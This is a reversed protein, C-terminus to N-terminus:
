FNSQIVSLYDIIKPKRPATASWAWALPPPPPEGMKNIQMALLASVVGRAAGCVKLSPLRM